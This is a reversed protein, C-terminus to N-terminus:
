APEAGRSTRAPGDKPPAKSAPAWRELEERAIGYEIFATFGTGVCRRLWQIGAATDGNALALQALWFYAECEHKVIDFKGGQRATELLQEETLEGLLFRIGAEQWSAAKTRSRARALAERNGGGNRRESLEAMITMYVEDDTQELRRYQAAAEPLRGVRYLYNAYQFRIQEDVEPAALLPALIAEVEAFRREDLLLQVDIYRVEKTRGLIQEARALDKRSAEIASVDALKQARELRLRGEQKSGAKVQGLMADALAIGREAQLVLLPHLNDGGSWAESPGEPLMGVMGTGLLPNKTMALLREVAEPQLLIRSWAQWRLHDSAQPIGRLVLSFRWNLWALDARGAQECVLISQEVDALEAPEGSDIWGLWKQPLTRKAVWDAVTADLASAMIPDSRRIAAVSAAEGAMLAEISRDSNEAGDPRALLERRVHLDIFYWMLGLSGPANALRERTKAIMEDCAAFDKLHSSVPLGQTLLHEHYGLMAEPMSYARRLGPSLPLASQALAIIRRATAYETGVIALSAVLYPFSVDQPSIELAAQWFLPNRSVTEQFDFPPYFKDVELLVYEGLAQVGPYLRRDSRAYNRAILKADNVALGRLRELSLNVPDPPPTFQVEGLTPLPTKPSSECGALFLAAAGLAGWAFRTFWGVPIKCAGLLAKRPTM